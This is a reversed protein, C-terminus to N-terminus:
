RRTGLGLPYGKTLRAVLGGFTRDVVQGSHALASGLLRGHQGLLVSMTIRRMGFHPQLQISSYTLQDPLLIGLVHSPLIHIFLDQRRTFQSEIIDPQTDYRPSAKSFKGNTPGSCYLQYLTPLSFHCTQSHEEHLMFYSNFPANKVRQKAPLQGHSRPISVPSDM